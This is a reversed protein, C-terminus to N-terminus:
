RSFRQLTEGPRIVLKDKQKKEAGDEGGEVKRRKRRGDGDMERGAAAKRKERWQARVKTANIVRAASKPVAETLLDDVGPM